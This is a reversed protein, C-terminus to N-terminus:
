WFPVIGQKPKLGPPPANPHLTTSHATPPPADSAGGGVSLTSRVDPRREADGACGSHPALQCVRTTPSNTSDSDLAPLADVACGSHPDSKRIAPGNTSNSHRTSDPAPQADGAEERRKLRLHYEPPGCSKPFDTADGPAPHPLPGSQVSSCRAHSPDHCWEPMEQVVRGAAGPQSYGGQEGGPDASTCTGTEALRKSSERRAIAVGPLLSLAAGGAMRRAESSLPVSEKKPSDMRTAREAARITMQAEGMLQGENRIQPVNQCNRTPAAPPSDRLRFNTMESYVSSHPL